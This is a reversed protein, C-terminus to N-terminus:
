FIVFFTLPYSSSYRCSLPKLTEEDRYLGIHYVSATPLAELAIDSLILGARLIPSLIIPVNPSLCQCHAKSVPTEILTSSLPLDKSAEQMLIRAVRAMAMRFLENSTNKDRLVSLNHSVLPHDCVTLLANESVPM